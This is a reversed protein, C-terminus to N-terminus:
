KKSSKERLLKDIIEKASECTFRRVAEDEMYRIRDLLAKVGILATVCSKKSHGWWM